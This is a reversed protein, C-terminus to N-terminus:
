KAAGHPPATLATLFGKMDESNPSLQLAKRVMEIAEQRRGMRELLIGTNFYADAGSPNLKMAEAYSARAEELRGLTLLSNGLNNFTSYDPAIAAAKRYAQVAATFDGRKAYIGGINFYASSLGPDLSAATTCERLGEDFRGLEGLVLGLLAHPEAWDPDADIAQRCYPEAEAYRRMNVLMAAAHLHAERIEPQREIAEKYYDLAQSVLGKKFTLTGLANLTRGEDPRVALSKRLVDDAKEMEGKDTLVVGLNTLMVYNDRTKDVARGFLSADDRWYHVQQWTLVGAVVLLIAGGVVAPRALAPKRRVLEEFGWVIAFFLGVLSVYTYRDAHSQDGVQVLGIV